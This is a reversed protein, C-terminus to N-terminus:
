FDKFICPLESDLKDFGAKLVITLILPPKRFLKWYSDSLRLKRFLTEFLIIM